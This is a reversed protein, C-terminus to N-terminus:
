LNAFHLFGKFLQAYTEIRNIMHDTLCSIKDGEFHVNDLKFFATKVLVNDIVNRTRALTNYM